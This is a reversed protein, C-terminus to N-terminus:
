MPQSSEAVAGALPSSWCGIELSDFPAPPSFTVDLSDAPSSGPSLVPTELSELPPVAGSLEPSAAGSLEAPPNVKSEVPNVNSEVAYASLIFHSSSPATWSVKPMLIVQTPPWHSTSEAETALMIFQSAPSVMSCIPMTSTQSSPWHVISEVAVAAAFLHSSSPAVFVSVM